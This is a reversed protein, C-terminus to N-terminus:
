SSDKKKKKILGVKDAFANSIKKKLRRTCVLRPTHPFALAMAQRLAIEEDSGLVPFQACDLLRGCLHQLFIFFIDRDSNDHLLLPGCLIPHADADRRKVSLCKYVTVIVHVDSLNYTKNIGLM